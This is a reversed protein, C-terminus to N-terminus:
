PTDIYDLVLDGNSNERICWLTGSNINLLFSFISSRGSVFFQYNVQGPKMPDIRQREKRPISDILLQNPGQRVIEIMGESPTSDNDYHIYLKGEHKDVILMYIYRPHWVIEYRSQDQNNTRANDSIEQPDFIVQGCLSNCFLISTLIIQNRM